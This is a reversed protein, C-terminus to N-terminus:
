NLCYVMLATHKPKEQKIKTGLSGYTWFGAKSGYIESSPYIFGRKTVIDMIKESRSKEKSEM